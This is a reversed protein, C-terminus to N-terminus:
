AGDAIFQAVGGAYHRQIGVVVEADTLTALDDANEGWECDAIWERMAPVEPATVGVIPTGTGRWRGCECTEVNGRGARYTHTHM